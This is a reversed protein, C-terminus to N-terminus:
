NSPPGTRRIRLLVLVNWGVISAFGVAWAMTYIHPDLHLVMCAMSVTVADLSVVGLVRELTTEGFRNLL